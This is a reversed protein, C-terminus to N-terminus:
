PLIPPTKYIGASPDIRWSEAVTTELSVMLENNDDAYMGWTLILQKQNNLCAGLTAKRKANALAPLLMAALIAIIAIVVLLEILTFGPKAECKSTHRNKLVRKGASFPM